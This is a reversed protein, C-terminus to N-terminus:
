RGYYRLRRSGEDTLTYQGRGFNAILGAKKLRYLRGIASKDTYRFYERLDWWGVLKRRRIFHLVELKTAKVPRWKRM